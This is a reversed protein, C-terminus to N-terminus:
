LQKGLKFASERLSENCVFADTTQLKITSNVRANKKSDFYSVKLNRQAETLDSVKMLPKLFLHLNFIEDKLICPLSKPDPFASEIVSTDYEIQFDDLTPTLCASLM